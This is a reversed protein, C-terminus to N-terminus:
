DSGRLTFGHEYLHFHMRKEPPIWLVEPETKYECREPLEYAEYDRKRGERMNMGRLYRDISEAAVVGEKMAEVMFGIKRVDGGIYVWPKVQSQLTLQDLALGGRNGILGERQLLARDHTQGITIIM